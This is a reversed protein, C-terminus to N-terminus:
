RLTELYALVDHLDRDQFTKMQKVHADLPDDIAAVVKPGRAVAHYEGKADRLGIEFDDMYEVDGTFTGGDSTVTARSHAGRPYLIRAMLAAPEYKLPIGNMDGAASHCNACHGTFYAKGRDPDGTNVEKLEYAGRDIATQQRSRIFASLDKVQADTMQPFAPMGPRGTHVVPGIEDGGEDRLAVASRLLDPGEGGTADPGHCFGCSPVFLDKGREVAEPDPVPRSILFNKQADALAGFLLLTLVFKLL